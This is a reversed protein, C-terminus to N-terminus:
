AAYTLKEALTEDILQQTFDQCTGCATGAGLRAQISDLDEAGAHIASKIDSDSIAHCVCVFM